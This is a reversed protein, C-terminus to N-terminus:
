PTWYSDGYDIFLEEGEKINRTTKYFIKENYQYARVNLNKKKQFPTKVGNVYRAWNSYKKKRADIYFLKYKGSVKKQVEFVYSTDSRKDFEQESLLEGEYSCLRKGKPILTKAFVGKGASKVTSNKILILDKMVDGM